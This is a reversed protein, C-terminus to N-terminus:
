GALRARTAAPRSRAVLRRAVANIDDIDLPKFYVTAGLSEVAARTTPDLSSDGTIVAVPVRRRVPLARLHLLFGLGGAGPMRLDLFVGAPRLGGALLAIAAEATGAERTAYGGCALATRFVDRVSPEDDVVLIVPSAPDRAM